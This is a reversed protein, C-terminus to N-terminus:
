PHRWGCSHALEHLVLVAPVECWHRQTTIISAHPRHEECGHAAPNACPVSPLGERFMVVNRPTTERKWGAEDAIQSISQMANPEASCDRAVAFLVLALLYGLMALTLGDSRM